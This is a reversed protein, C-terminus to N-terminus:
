ELMLTRLDDIDKQSVGISLLYAEARQKFSVSTDSDAAGLAKGGLSWITDSKQPKIPEGVFNRPLSDSSGAYGSCSSHYIQYVEFSLM